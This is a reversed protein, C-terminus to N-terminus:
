TNKETQCAHPYVCEYMEEIILCTKKMTNPKKNRFYATMLGCGAM